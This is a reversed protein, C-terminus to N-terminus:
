EIHRKRSTMFYSSQTCVLRIIYLLVLVRFAFTYLYIKSAFFKIYIKSLVNVHGLIIKHFLKQCNVFICATFLHGNYFTKSKIIFFIKVTKFYKAYLTITTIFIEAYKIYIPTAFPLPVACKNFNSNRKYTDCCNECHRICPM